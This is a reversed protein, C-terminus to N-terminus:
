RTSGTSVTLSYRCVGKCRLTDHSLIKLLFSFPSIITKIKMEIGSWKGNERERLCLSETIGPSITKFNTISTPM